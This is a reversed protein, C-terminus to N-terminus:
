RTPSSPACSNARRASHLGCHWLGKKASIPDQFSLLKTASIPIQPLNVAGPGEIDEDEERTKEDAHLVHVELMAFDLRCSFVESNQLELGQM